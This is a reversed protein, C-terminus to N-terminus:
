ECSIRKKTKMIIIITFLYLLFYMLTLIWHMVCLIEVFYGAGENNFGRMTECTELLECVNDM